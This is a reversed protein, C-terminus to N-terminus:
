PRPGVQRVRAATSDYVALRGRSDCALALPTEFRADRAPGDDVAFARELSGAIVEAGAPGLRQLRFMDTFYLGGDPCVAVALPSGEVLDTVSHDPTVRQVAQKGFNAVYLNGERDISLGGGGTGSAHTGIVGAANVVRIRGAESIYLNGDGDM